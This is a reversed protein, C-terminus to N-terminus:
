LTEYPQGSEGDKDGTVDSTLHARRIGVAEVELKVGVMLKM